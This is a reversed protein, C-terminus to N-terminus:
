GAAEFIAYLKRCDEVVEWIGVFGAPVVFSDGAAFEWREGQANSLVVRGQLLHCFESETYSIQWSGRTASWVGAFFQQSADGYYNWVTLRPQGSVIRAADPSSHQPDVSSRFSVIKPASPM